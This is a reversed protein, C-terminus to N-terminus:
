ICHHRLKQKTQPNTIKQIWELLCPLFCFLRDDEQFKLAMRDYRILIGEKRNHERDQLNISRAIDGRFNCEM